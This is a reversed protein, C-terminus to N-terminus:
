CMSKTFKEPETKPDRICVMEYLSEHEERFEVGSLVPDFHFYEWDMNDDDKDLAFGIWGGEASALGSYLPTKQRILNGAATDLPGGGFWVQKMRWLMERERHLTQGM